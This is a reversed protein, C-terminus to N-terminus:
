LLFKLQQMYSNCKLTNKFLDISIILSLFILSGVAEVCKLLVCTDWSRQEMRIVLLKQQGQPSLCAQVHQQSLSVFNSLCNTVM